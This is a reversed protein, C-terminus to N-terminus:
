ATEPLAAPNPYADADDRPPASPDNHLCQFDKEIAIAPEAGAASYIGVDNSAAWASAIASPVRVRIEGNAHIATAAQVADTAELTWTLSAGGPFALVADVRGTDHFRAVDKQSLRLRLSNGQLRLKV